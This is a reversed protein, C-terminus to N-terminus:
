ESDEDFSCQQYRVHLTKGMAKSDMLIGGIGGIGPGSRWLCKVRPSCTFKLVKVVCNRREPLREGRGMPIWDITTHNVSM